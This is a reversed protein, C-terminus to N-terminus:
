LLDDFLDEVAIESALRELEVELLDKREKDGVIREILRSDEGKRQTRDSEKIPRSPITRRGLHNLDPSPLWSSLSEITEHQLHSNSRNAIESIPTPKKREAALSFAKEVDEITDNKVNELGKRLSVYGSLIDGHVADHEFREPHALYRTMEEALVRARSGKPMKKIRVRISRYSDICKKCRSIGPEDPADCFICILDFGMEKMARRPISM